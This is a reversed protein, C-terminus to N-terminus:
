VAPRPAAAAAVANMTVSGSAAPDGGSPRRSGIWSWASAGRASSGAPFLRASRRRYRASRRSARSSRASASSKTGVASKPSGGFKMGTARNGDLLELELEELLELELQDLLEDLLELEL